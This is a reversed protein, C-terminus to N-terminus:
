IVASKHAGAIEGTVRKEADIRQRLQAVDNDVLVGYVIHKRLFIAGVLRRLIRMALRLVRPALRLVRPALRLVRPALRWAQRLMRITIQIHPRAGRLLHKLRERQRDTLLAVLRSRAVRLGSGEDINPIDVVRGRLISFDRVSKPVGYLQNNCLVIKYGSYIQYNHPLKKIRLPSAAALYERLAQLIAGHSLLSTARAFALRIPDVPLFLTSKAESRDLLFRQAFAFSWPDFREEPSGQEALM